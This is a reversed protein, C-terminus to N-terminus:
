ARAVRVGEIRGQLRPDISEMARRAEGSGVLRSSDPYSATVAYGGSVSSVRVRPRGIGPLVSANDVVAAKVDSASVGLKEFGSVRVFFAVQMPHRTPESSGGGDGGGAPTRDAPVRVRAQGIDVEYRPRKIIRARGIEVVARPSRQAARAARLVVFGLLGGLVLTRRSLM